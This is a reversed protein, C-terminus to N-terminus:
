SVPVVFVTDATFLRNQWHVVMSGPFHGGAKIATVGSGPIIEQTPSSILKLCANAAEDRRAVWKADESAIYVPVRGFAHSWTAFTTYFHPHSIVIAQIGGLEDVKLLLRFIILSMRNFVTIRIFALRELPTKTLLHM